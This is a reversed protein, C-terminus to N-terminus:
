ICGNAAHAIIIKYLPLPFSVVHVVLGVEIDVGKLEPAAGLAAHVVGGIVLPPCHGVADLLAEGVVVDGGVGVDVVEHPKLAVVDEVGLLFFLLLFIGFNRTAELGM